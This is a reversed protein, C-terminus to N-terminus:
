PTGTLYGVRVIVSESPLSGNTGKAVALMYHGPPAVNGNAPAAVRLTYEGNPSSTLEM